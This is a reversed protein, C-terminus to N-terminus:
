DIQCNVALLHGIQTKGSGYEGFCETIANSEFGGAMLDDFAKSGTNIRFVRERKKLLDEGSEFGMDMSARAAAIVRKAVADSMGVTDVLEAVTAVAISMLDKYGLSELKEATAAGVGPLDQILMEKKKEMRSRKPKEVIQEEILQQEM